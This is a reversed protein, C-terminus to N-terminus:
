GNKDEQPIVFECTYPLTGLTYIPISLYEALDLEQATGTKEGAANYELSYGDVLLVAQCASVISFDVTLYRDLNVNGTIMQSLCDLHPIIPAWGRDYAAEAAMVAKHINLYPHGQSLMPGSVYLLNRLKYV